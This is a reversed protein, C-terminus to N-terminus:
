REFCDDSSEVADFIDDGEQCPIRSVSQEDGRSPMGVDFGRKFAVFSRAPRSLAGAQAVDQVAHDRRELEARLHEVQRTAGVLKRRLSRTYDERSRTRLEAIEKQHELARLSAAENERAREQELTKIQMRLEEQVLKEATKCIESGCSKDLPSSTLIKLVLGLHSLLIPYSDVCVRVLQTKLTDVQAELKEARKNLGCTTFSNEERRLLLEEHLSHVEEELAQVRLEYQGASAAAQEKLVILEKTLTEVQVALSDALRKSEELLDARAQASELLTRLQGLQEDLERARYESREAEQAQMEKLELKKSLIQIQDALYQAHREHAEASTAIDRERALAEQLVDVHHKLELVRSEADQGDDAPRQEVHVYDCSVNM